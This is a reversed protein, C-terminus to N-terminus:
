RPNLAATLPRLFWWLLFCVSLFLRTITRPAPAPHLLPPFGAPSPTCVRKPLLTKCTWFFSESRLSPDWGPSLGSPAGLCSRHSAPCSPPCHQERLPLFASGRRAAAGAGRPPSSCCRPPKLRFRRGGATLVAPTGAFGCPCLNTCAPLLRRDRPWVSTSTTSLAPAPLARAGPQPSPFGGSIQPICLAAGLFRRYM